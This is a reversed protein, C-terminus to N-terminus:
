TIATLLQGTETDFALLAPGDLNLGVSDGDAYTAFLDASGVVRLEGAEATITLAINHGLPELDTVMGAIMGTGAPVVKIQEPRIGLIFDYAGQMSNTIPPARFGPCAFRAGAITVEDETFQAPVLNILPAGVFRAAEIDVPYDYIMQPTGIQVVKGERLLVITDAIALAEAFDPTALFFSHGFERQLRRLEARLEIRLMADLSSLPEDLLFVAPDRILARGLAVRQREGGSMTKPLRGLVHPIKLIHALHKVKQEIVDPATNSIKLPYAINGFGTKNPYLALNDFILAVNRDKPEADTLDIGEIEIRGTDPTELGAIMKLTTTKGAGAAGLLVTMSGSPVDLSLSDIALTDGYKKTVDRLCLARTEVDLGKM